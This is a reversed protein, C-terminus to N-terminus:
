PEISIDDYEPIEDDNMADKHIFQVVIEEDEEDHDEELNIEISAESGIADNLKDGTADHNPQWIFIYQGNGEGVVIYGKSELFGRLVDAGEPIM